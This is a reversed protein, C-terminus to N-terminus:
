LPRWSDGEAPQWTLAPALQLATFGKGRRDALYANWQATQGSQPGSPAYERPPAAWATDSVWTFATRDPFQLESLAITLGDVVTEVQKVFGRDFLPNGTATNSQVQITGQ